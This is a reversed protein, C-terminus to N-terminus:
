TITVICISLNPNLKLDYGSPGPLIVPEGAITGIAQNLGDRTKRLSDRVQTFRSKDSTSSLLESNEQLLTHLRRVLALRPDISQTSRIPDDTKVIKHWLSNIDKPEAYIAQRLLEVLDRHKRINSTFQNLDRTQKQTSYDWFEQLLYEESLTRETARALEWLLRFPLPGIGEIKEKQGRIYVEGDVPDLSTLNMWLDFRGPPTIGIEEVDITSYYVIEGSLYMDVRKRLALLEDEIMTACRLELTTLPVTEGTRKIEGVAEWIRAISAKLEEEIQALNPLNPYGREVTYSLAREFTELSSENDQEQHHRKLGKWAELTVPLKGLNDAITHQINIGIMEELFHQALAYNTDDNNDHKQIIALNSGGIFAAPFIDPPYLMTKINREPNFTHNMWYAGGMIGIQQTEFLTRIDLISQVYPDPPLPACDTLILRALRQLALQTEQSDILVQGTPSIFDGGAAWIWPLCDHLSNERGLPWAIVRNPMDIKLSLCMAEFARWSDFAHPHYQLYGQLISNHYFLVRVDAVLPLAYIQDNHLPHRCTNLLRPFFGSPAYLVNCAWDTVNLLAGEQILRSTWSTGIEVVDPTNGDQISRLLHQHFKTWDWGFDKIEITASLSTSLKSLLKSSLAPPWGQVWVKLKSSTSQSSAM